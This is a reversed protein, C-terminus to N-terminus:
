TMSFTSGDSTVKGVVGRCVVGRCVVGRCVVGRCVVDRCVVDRCVVGRGGCGQVGCGQVGVFPICTTVVKPIILVSVFELLFRAGYHLNKTEEVYHVEEISGRNAYSCCQLLSWCQLNFISLISILVVNFYPCYQLFFPCYRIACFQAFYHRPIVQSIKGMVKCNLLVNTEDNCAATM